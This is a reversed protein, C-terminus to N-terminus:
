TERKLIALLATIMFTAEGELTCPNPKENMESITVKSGTGDLTEQTDEDPVEISFSYGRSYFLFVADKFAYQEILDSVGYAVIYSKGTTEDKETRFFGDRLYIQKGTAFTVRCRYDTLTNDPEPLEKFFWFGENEWPEETITYEKYARKEIQKNTYLAGRRLNEAKYKIKEEIKGKGSEIDACRIVRVAETQEKM